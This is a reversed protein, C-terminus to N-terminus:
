RKWFVDTPDVARKIKLLREYNSGWFTHQWDKEFPLAENLYAGAKPTLARLPEMSSDLLKITEQEATKNFPPFGTASLAHVYTNRWAPNVSNGGRPKANQVGKGGVMFLSMGGSPLSAAQIAKGLAKPDGKLTKGDVLRSVIYSSNGAFAQDYNKDFWAHFTPFEESILFLFAQGPWRQKITDNIPKFIDQLFGPGKDQVFGFGMVGAIDTPAGPAPVPNKMGLSAYNYGSLGGKDMLYPIQSSLYAILDLLFPSKPDTIGMWSLSTIKPTPHTWMTVKTMVGFTSGGGGRLAWFLDSHQDENTILIQGQPTVVEVQIVNDAALGYRPALTSHGGGSVYGGVSVSKAGGGVVTQNHADAATYIDYMETGGGVTVASGKLVKGSGALAFNGEHFEISNMHHVWISLSGPANSRGLYDHGSSKVVLRVTHKRAFDVAAKVHSATTANVVYNPYGKGSCPYQANPLCTDNAFQDMMMSVPDAAHWDYSSWGRQAAPCQEPNYTPQDPHCVAGPPAPALLRGGVTSNLANWAGPSPWARSGPAAKCSNTGPCSASASGLLCPISLVLQELHM